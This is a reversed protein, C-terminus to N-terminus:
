QPPRWVARQAKVLAHRATIGVPVLLFFALEGVMGVIALVFSLCAAIALVAHTAASRQVRGRTKWFYWVCAVALSFAVMSVALTPIDTTPKAGKYRGGIRMIVALTGASCALLSMGWSARVFRRSASLCGRCALGLKSPELDDLGFAANCIDCNGTRIVHNDVLTASPELM